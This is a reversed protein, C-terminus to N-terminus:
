LLDGCFLIIHLPTVPVNYFKRYKYEEYNHLVIELWHDGFYPM